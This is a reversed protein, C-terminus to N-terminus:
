CRDTGALPLVQWRDARVDAGTGAPTPCEGPQVGEAIRHPQIFGGRKRAAAAALLYTRLEVDKIKASALTLQTCGTGGALSHAGIDRALAESQATRHCPEIVFRQESGCSYRNR